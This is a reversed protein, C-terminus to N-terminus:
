AGPKTCIYGVLRAACLPCTEARPACSRCAAMHQCPLMVAERPRQRCAGCVPAASAAPALEPGRAELERVRAELTAVRQQAERVRGNARTKRLASPMTWARNREKQLEGGARQSAQAEKERAERAERTRAQVEAEKASLQDRLSMLERDKKGVQGDAETRAANAVEASRQATDLDNQLAAIRAQLDRVEKEKVAVQAKVAQVEEASAGGSASSSHPASKVVSGSSQQSASAVTFRFPSGKLTVNNLAVSVTCAGARTPTFTVRYTGDQQDAVAARVQDGANDITVVWADGGQTVVRAEKDKATIVFSALQGVTASNLGTGAAASNPAHARGALPDVSLKGGSSGTFTARHSHSM